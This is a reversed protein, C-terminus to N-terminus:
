ARKVRMKIDALKQRAKGKLKQMGGKFGKGRKQNIDGKIIEIKGKAKETIYKLNGM